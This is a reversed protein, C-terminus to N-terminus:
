HGGGDGECAQTSNVRAGDASTSVASQKQEATFTRQEVVTDALYKVMSTKRSGTTATSPKM